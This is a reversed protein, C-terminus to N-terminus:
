DRTLMLLQYVPVHTNWRSCADEIKSVKVFMISLIIEPIVKFQFNIGLGVRLYGMTDSGSNFNVSVLNSDVPNGPCLVEM